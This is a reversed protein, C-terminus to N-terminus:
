ILFLLSGCVADAPLIVSPDAGCIQEMPDCAASFCLNIHLQDAMHHLFFLLYDKQDRFNGKGPLRDHSKIFTEPVPNGQKVGSHGWPLAIVLIFPCSGPIYINHDPGTRGQKGGKFPQPQDNNILLM